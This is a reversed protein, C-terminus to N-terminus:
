ILLKEYLIGERYGKSGVARRMLGMFIDNVSFVLANM